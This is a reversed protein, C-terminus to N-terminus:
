FKNIIDYKFRFNVKNTINKRNDDTTIFGGGISYYVKKYVRGAIDVALFEM